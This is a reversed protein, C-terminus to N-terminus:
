LWGLLIKSKTETVGISDDGGDETEVLWHKAPMLSGISFLTYAGIKIHPNEKGQVARMIVTLDSVVVTLFFSTKPGLHFVVALAGHKYSTRGRKHLFM